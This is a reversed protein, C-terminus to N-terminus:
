SRKLWMEIRDMANILNPCYENLFAEDIETEPDAATLAREGDFDVYAMRVTFETAPRGFDTGPLCAVGADDLLQKCLDRSTKIGCAAFHERHLSFDPFLYFGGEPDALQCGMHRLRSTLTQGLGRLIRRSRSLYDTIDPGGEFARIAAYQIPASVTTFTESAVVAMADLLWRLGEPFLFTGLRWGGAGAWKSLGSSIITGQPYHRAISHHEGEYHLESYIEDSLVLMGYREAVQAIAKLEVDSYTIGVPNNPYNLILLRPRGPDELCIAELEEAQIRWGNEALTNVRRIQRGIISAQPSYSVWSPAPIVLDGYFVLQLIFMLEKSGPGILVDDATREIGNVRAHFDAVASRLAQLGRVPLYDKQHANNQLAAVVSDPVPFPSQGLGLRYITKGARQLATSEENIALTASTDLGRVNLNLHVCPSASGRRARNLNVVNM